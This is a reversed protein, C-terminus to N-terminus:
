KLEKVKFIINVSISHSFKILKKNIKELKIWSHLTPLGHSGLLPMIEFGAHGCVNPRNCNEGCTQSIPM